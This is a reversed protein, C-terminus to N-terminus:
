AASPQPKRSRWWLDAVFIAIATWILLFSALQVTRLQQGFVFLGLLFVVMSSRMFAFLGHVERPYIKESKEYLSTPLETPPDLKVKQTSM